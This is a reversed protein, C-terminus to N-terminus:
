QPHPHVSWVNVKRFMVFTGFVYTHVPFRITSSRAELGAYATAWFLLYNIVPRLSIIDAYSHIHVSIHTLDACAALCAPLCALM